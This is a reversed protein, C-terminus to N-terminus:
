VLVLLYELGRLSNVGRRLRMKASVPVAKNVIKQHPIVEMKTVMATFDHSRLSGSHNRVIKMM